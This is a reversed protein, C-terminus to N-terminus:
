INVRKGTVEGDEICHHKNVYNTGKIKMELMKKEKVESGVIRCPTNKKDGIIESGM